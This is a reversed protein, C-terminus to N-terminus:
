NLKMTIDVTFIAWHLSTYMPYIWTDKIIPKLM